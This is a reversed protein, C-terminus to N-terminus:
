RGMKVKTFNRGMPNPVFYQTTRFPNWILVRDNELRVPISLIRRYDKTDCGLNTQFFRCGFNSRKGQTLFSEAKFAHCSPLVPYGTTSAPIFSSHCVPYIWLLTLIITADKRTLFRMISQRRPCLHNQSVKTSASKAFLLALQCHTAPLPASAAREKSYKIGHRLTFFKIRVADVYLIKGSSESIGFFYM